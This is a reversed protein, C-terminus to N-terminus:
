QENKQKSGVMWTYPRWWVRPNDRGDARISAVMLSYANYVCPIRM